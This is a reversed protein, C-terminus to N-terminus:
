KTVTPYGDPGQLIYSFGAPIKSGAPYIIRTKQINHKLQYIRIKKPNRKIKRKKKM